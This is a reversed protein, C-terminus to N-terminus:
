KVSRDTNLLYASVVYTNASSTLYMGLRCLTSFGSKSAAINASLTLFSHRSASPKLKSKAAVHKTNTSNDVPFM